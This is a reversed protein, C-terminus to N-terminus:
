KKTNTTTKKKKDELANTQMLKSMAFALDAGPKQRVRGFEDTYYNSSLANINAMTNRLNFEGVRRKREFEFYNHYDAMTNGLATYQRKEFDLIDAVRADEERQQQGINFQEVAMDRQINQGRLQAKSRNINEQSGAVISALAARSQSDPMGQLTEIGIDQARFIEKMAEEDTMDQSGMRGYIREVKLHGMLPDPPLTSQDPLFLPRAQPPRNSLQMARRIAEEDIPQGTSTKPITAADPTVVVEELEGGDLTSDEAPIITGLVYDVAVDGLDETLENFADEGLIEKVKDQNESIGVQSRTYVGLENLQELQEPTVFNRRMPSRTLTFNGAKADFLRATEGDELFKLVDIAPNVKDAAEFERDIFHAGTDQLMKNYGQQFKKIKNKDKTITAVGDKEDIINNALTPMYNKIFKVLDEDKGYSGYRGTEPNYSQREFEAIASPNLKIFDYIIEKVTANERDDEKRTKPLKGYKVWDGDEYEQPATRTFYQAQAVTEEAFERPHNVVYIAFEPVAMGQARAKVRFLDDNSEVVEVRGGDEFEYNGLVGRVEEADRGYQDSIAQITNTDVKRKKSEQLNFIHNTFDELDRNKNEIEEQLSLAKKQLYLINMRKTADSKTDKQADLRIEIDRLEDELTILKIKKKYKDIATAYTDKAKTSIGFETRLDKAQKVGIKLNDSVVKTGEPLGIQEGGQEHARGEVESVKGTPLQFYEGDELIPAGGRLRGGDEAYEYLHEGALGERQRKWYDEMAQQYRNQWGMGAGVVRGLNLGIKGAAGIGRVWNGAKGRSRADPNDYLQGSDFSLSQGLMFAATDINTDMWAQDSLLFSNKPTKEKTAGPVTPEAKQTSTELPTPMAPTPLATPPPTINKYYESLTTGGLPLDSMGMAQLYTQQFLPHQMFGEADTMSFLNPYEQGVQNPLGQQRHYLSQLFQNKLNKDDYLAM